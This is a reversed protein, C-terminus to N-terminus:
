STKVGCVTFNKAFIVSYDPRRANLFICGSRQCAYTICNVMTEGHDSSLQVLSLSRIYMFVNVKNIVLYLGEFLVYYRFCVLNYDCKIQITTSCSILCVHIVKYPCLLIFIFSCLVKYFNDNCYKDFIHKKKYFLRAFAFASLRHLAIVAAWPCQLM